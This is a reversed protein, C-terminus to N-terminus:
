DHAAGAMCERLRVAIVEVMGPHLGIPEGVRVPVDPHGAAAEEALRPIDSRSHRGPALFYPIVVVRKAGRQVCRGFATAISPEALEMHAPEVIATQTEAAFLAVFAHLQQNAEDRKSGHDVIIVGVDGSAGGDTDSGMADATIDPSPM